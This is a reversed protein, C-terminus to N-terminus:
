PKVQNVVPKISCHELLEQLHHETYNSVGISRILGLEQLKELQQYTLKRLVRHEDSEPKLKAAGPWHILVMDIYELKLRALSDYVAQKCRDSGQLNPAPFLVFTFIFNPTWYIQL